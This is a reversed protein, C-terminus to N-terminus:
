LMQSYGHLRTSFYPLNGRREEECHSSNKQQRGVYGGQAMFSTTMATSVESVSQVPEAIKLKKSANLITDFSERAVPPVWALLVSKVPKM